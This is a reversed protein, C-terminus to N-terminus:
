GERESRPPAAAASSRRRRALEILSNSVVEITEELNLGAERFDNLPGYNVYARAAAAVVRDGALDRFTVEFFRGAVAYYEAARKQLSPHDLDGAMAPWDAESRVFFRYMADVYRRIRESELEVGDQIREDPWELETTIDDLVAELLGDGSGFHHVITGRAVDAREAIAANTTGSIGRERYLARAAERIRRSTAAATEARRDQNYTRPAM